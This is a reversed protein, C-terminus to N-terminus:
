NPLPTCSGFSCQENGPICEHADGHECKLIGTGFDDCKCHHASASPFTAGLAAGLAAARLALWVAKWWLSKVQAM